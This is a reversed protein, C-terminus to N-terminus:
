YFVLIWLFVGCIYTWFMSFVIHVTTEFRKGHWLAPSYVFFQFLLRFIWFIFLGFVIKHGFHTNVLEHACSFCLLGMLFVILAVFFTHVEMLQRHLLDLSRLQTKWDFYRPFAAHLLALMIFSIGIIKLHLEM